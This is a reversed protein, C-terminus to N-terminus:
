EYKRGPKRYSVHIAGASIVKVYFHEYVFPLFNFETISLQLDVANGTLHDSNVVGGVAKNHASCRCASNVYSVLDNSEVWKKLVPNLEDFGCGCRCASWSM